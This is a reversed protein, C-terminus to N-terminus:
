LCHVETELQPISAPIGKEKIARRISEIDFRRGMWRGGQLAFTFDRAALARRPAGARTVVAFRRQRLHNCVSQVFDLPVSHAVTISPPEVMGSEDIVFIAALGAEIRLQRQRPPYRLEATRGDQTAEDVEAFVLDKANPFRSNPVTAGPSTQVSPTGGACASLALVYLVLARM